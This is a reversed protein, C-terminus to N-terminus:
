VIMKHDSLNDTDDCKKNRDDDGLKFIYLVNQQTLNGGIQSHCEAKYEQASRTLQAQERKYIRAMMWVSELFYLHNM